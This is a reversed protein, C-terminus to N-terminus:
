RPVLAVDAHQPARGVSEEREEHSRSLMSQSDRVRVVDRPQAEVEKQGLEEAHGGCWDSDVRRSGTCRVEGVLSISAAMATVPVTIAMEAM